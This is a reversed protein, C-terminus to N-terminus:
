IANKYVRKPKDESLIAEEFDDDDYKSSEKM